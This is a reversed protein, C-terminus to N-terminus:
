FNCSGCIIYIFNNQLFSTYKCILSLVRTCTRDLTITALWKIWFKKYKKETCFCSFDYVHIQTIVFINWVCYFSGYLTCTYKYIISMYTSIVTFGRAYIPCYRPNKMGVADTTQWRSASPTHELKMKIRKNRNGGSDAKLHRSEAKGEKKEKQHGSFISDSNRIQDKDQGYQPGVM